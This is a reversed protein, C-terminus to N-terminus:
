NPTPDGHCGRVPTRLFWAPLQLIVARMETDIDALRATFYSYAALSAVGVAVGFATPWLSESLSGAIAAMISMKDGTTGKFTGFILLVNGLLGFFPVTAAVTALGSLGRAMERHVAAASREAAHQALTMRWNM